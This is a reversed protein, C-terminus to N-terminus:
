KVPGIHVLKDGTLKEVWRALKLMDVNIYKGDRESYFSWAMEESRGGPIRSFNHPSLTSINGAEDRVKLESSSSVDEAYLQISDAPSSGPPTGNLIALVKAASTGFTTTGIGVNGNLFSNGVLHLPALLSTNYAVGIGLHTGDWKAENTYDDNVRMEVQSGSPANFVLSTGDSHIAYNTSSPSLNGMWLSAFNPGGTATGFQFMPNGAANRVTLTSNSDTAAAVIFAQALLARNQYQNSDISFLNLNSAGNVNFETSGAVSYRIQGRLFNSADDIDKLTGAAGGRSYWNGASSINQFSIELNVYADDLAKLVQACRYVGVNGFSTLVAETAVLAIKASEVWVQDFVTNESFSIGNAHGQIMVNQVYTMGFNQTKPMRIATTNNTPETTTDTGAGVHVIVNKVSANFADFLNLADLSPNQPTQFTLNEFYVSTGSGGYVISPETGSGARRDARLVAGGTGSTTMDATYQSTVGRLKVVNALGAGGDGVSLFYLIGNGQGSGNNLPGNVRYTGDPFDVTGGGVAGTNISNIAAQIAVTDDHQTLVAAVTTGANNALTLTTTGAGSSITTVLDAGSAGAGAVLIGQGNVFDIASALTLTASSANISGTTTTASGSAGFGKVNIPSPTQALVGGVGSYLSYGATAGTIADGIVMGSGGGGSASLTTGTMTLGSGLTIEQFDGAGSASGRGVLKSAASAQVLNAFPLDGTVGTSLPLGTANTLVLASPTGLAPTVLTPSTARVVDGTGSFGVYSITNINSSDTGLMFGTASAAPLEIRYNTSIVAPAHMMVRNSGDDDQFSIRGTDPTDGVTALLTLGGDGDILVRDQVAIGGTSVTKFKISTGMASDNWDENAIFLVEARNITAFATAAYGRGGVRLLTDGTLVATPSALSGRARRGQFEPGQTASVSSYSDIVAKGIGDFQINQIATFVNAANLLPVNASLRADALTGTLNAASITGGGAANSHNHTANVFSAITPTIITPSDNGMVLGTGSENSIVGFFLASSTPAFQSLPNGVLADGKANFTAWDAATLFGKVGSGAAQGNTYDISIVGSSANFDAATFAALGRTSGDAAANTISAIFNAVTIKKSQNASVDAILLLDASDATTLATLDSVKQAQASISLALVIILLAFLRKM